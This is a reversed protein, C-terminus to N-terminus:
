PTCAILTRASRSGSTRMRRASTASGACMEITYSFTIFHVNYHMRVLFHVICTAVCLFGTSSIRAADGLRRPASRRHRCSGQHRLSGSGRRRLSGSGRRRESGSGRRCRRGSGRRCRHGRSRLRLLRLLRLSIRWGSFGGEGCHQCRKWLKLFALARRGSWLLVSCHSRTWNQLSMHKCENNFFAFVSVASAVDCLGIIGIGQEVGKRSQIFSHPQLAHKFHM